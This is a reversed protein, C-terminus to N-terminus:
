CPGCHSHYSEDRGLFIRMDIEAWEMRRRYEKACEPCDSWFHTLGDAALRASLVQNVKCEKRHKVCSCAQGLLERISDDKDTEM